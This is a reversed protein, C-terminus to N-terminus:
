TSKRIDKLYYYFISGTVFFVALVKLIFRLTLDGNLFANLLAILDGIMVLAAIFLTFYFLWKRIRLGRKVPEMEYSKNLFRTTMLYAPFVILLVSLSFRIASLTGEKSYFGQTLDPMYFDIFQFVLVLFSVASVYLTIIALLHLFVDKPEAKVIRIQQEEMNKM